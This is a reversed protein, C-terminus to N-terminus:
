SFKSLQTIIKKSNQSEENEDYIPDGKKGYSIILFTLIIIVSFKKIM